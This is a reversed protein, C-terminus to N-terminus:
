ALVNVTVILSVLVACAILLALPVLMVAPPVNESRFPQLRVHVLAFPIKCPLVVVLQM